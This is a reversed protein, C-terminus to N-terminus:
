PYRWIHTFYLWILKSYPVSAQFLVLEAHSLAGIPTFYLWIPKFYPVLAQFLALNAHFLALEAHFLAANAQFLASLGPIIGFQCPIFYYFLINSVTSLFPVAALVRIFPLTWSVIDAMSACTHWRILTDKADLWSNTSDGASDPASNNQIMRWKGLGPEKEVLREFIVALFPM